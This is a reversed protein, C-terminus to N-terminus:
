MHPQSVSLFQLKKRMVVKIECLYDRQMLHKLKETKERATFFCSAVTKQFIAIWAGVLTCELFTNILLFVIVSLVPM